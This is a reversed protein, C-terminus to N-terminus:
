PRIQVPMKVFRITDVNGEFMDLLLEADDALDPDESFEWGEPGPRGVGAVEGRSDVYVAQGLGWYLTRVQVKQDDGARVARTEGTLTATSNFKEAQLIVGLVNVLRQGLSVRGQTPDDPIQVILPELKDQLPTPLRPVLAKVGAELDVLWDQLATTTRQFEGRELLLDVREQDAETITADLEAIQEKLAKRQERLLDRSARLLEREADWDSKEESLIQRTEVWKEMKVRFEGVKEAAHAPPAGGAVAFVAVGLTLCALPTRYSPSV